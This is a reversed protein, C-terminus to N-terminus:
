PLIKDLAAPDIHKAWERPGVYKVSETAIKSAYALAARFDCRKHYYAFCFAGHFIDGAALSDSCVVPEVPIEGDTLIVPKEGRTIAKKANICEKISFVDQGAPNRFNESAIVIAAKKLFESTDGKWSGADLVIECNCNQLIGLSLEQQNLDFLCFDPKELEPANGINYRNQGSFIRRNGYQDVSIAAINPMADDDTCNLVTVGYDNLVKKIYVSEVTNGLCTVLTANGGLLSYTIAANAAPGGVFRKYNGTKTKANEQPQSDVYFVYDLTTLGVFCGRPTMAVNRVMLLEEMEICNHFSGEAVGQLCQKLDMWCVSDVEERQLCFESEELDKWLVFVRTYQRDHYEKEFFVDDWIIKRDGCCILEEAKASIGLEEKLERLASIVFGEGAPIHGASSIDYCGPFSKNAARKQLLIQVDNKGRRLLWVHSTRHWIGKLHAADREVIQGVPLGKENVIDLFETM